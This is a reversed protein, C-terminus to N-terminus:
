TKWAEGAGEPQEREDAGGQAQGSRRRQRAKGTRHAAGEGRGATDGGKGAAGGGDEGGAGEHRGGLCVTCCSVLRVTAALALARFCVASSRRPQGRTRERPSSPPLPGPLPHPPPHRTAARASLAPEVTQQAGACAPCRHLHRAAGPRAGGAPLGQLAPGVSHPRGSGRCSRGAEPSAHPAHHCRLSPKPSSTCPRPLTAARGPALPLHQPLVPGPAQTQTRTGPGPVSVAGTTGVSGASFLTPVGPPGATGLDLAQRDTGENM